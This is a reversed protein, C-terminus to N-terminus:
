FFIGTMGALKFKFGPSRWYLAAFSVTLDSYSVCSRTESNDDGPLRRASLSSRYRSDRPSIIFLSVVSAVPLMTVLCSKKKLCKEEDAIQLWFNYGQFFFM